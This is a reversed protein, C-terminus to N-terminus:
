AQGGDKRRLRKDVQRREWDPGLFSVVEFVALGHALVGIGWGIAVFGVWLVQPSFWLNLGTLIAITIAFQLAHTYFGKLDRVHELADREADTLTDPTPMPSDEPRLATFDVELAAALCKLTEPTAGAGREIRQITRVSVGSMASLQEQSLGRHLRYKRLIM